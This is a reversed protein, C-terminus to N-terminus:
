PSNPHPFQEYQPTMTAVYPNPPPSDIFSGGPTTEIILPSLYMNGDTVSYYDEDVLTTFMLLVGLVVLIIGPSTTGLSFNVMPFKGELKQFPERMKGLVFSAGVLALIMGTVFGLYRIWLNSMLLISQHHYRQSVIYAEMRSRVELDRAGLLDEFTEANAYLNNGDISNIDIAPIELISRYLYSIQLFTSIFFFLSLGILLSTMVPLLREQWRPPKATVLQGSQDQREEDVKVDSQVTKKVPSM